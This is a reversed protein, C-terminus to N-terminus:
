TQPKSYISVTFQHMVAPHMCVVHASVAATERPVLWTVVLYLQLYVVETSM